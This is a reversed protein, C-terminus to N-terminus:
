TMTDFRYECILCSTSSWSYHLVLVLHLTINQIEVKKKRQMNIICIEPLFCYYQKSTSATVRSSEGKAM